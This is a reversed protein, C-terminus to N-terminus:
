QGSRQRRVYAARPSESRPQLAKHAAAIYADSRGDDVVVGADELEAIMAVREDTEVPLQMPDFSDDEVEDADSDQEDLVLGTDDAYEDSAVEYRARQWSEQGSGVSAFKVDLVGDMDILVDVYWEGPARRLVEGKARTYRRARGGIVTITVTIAVPDFPRSDIDRFRAAFRVRDGVVFSM